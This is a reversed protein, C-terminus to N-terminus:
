TLAAESQDSHRSSDESQDCTVPVRLPDVGLDVKVADQRRIDAQELHRGELSPDVHHRISHVRTLYHSAHGLTYKMSGDCLPIM